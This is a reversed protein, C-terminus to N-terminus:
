RKQFISFYNHGYYFKDSYDIMKLGLPNFLGELSKKDYLRANPILKLKNVEYVLEFEKKLQNFLNKKELDIKINNFLDETSILSKPGSVTIIGDSKLVNYLRELYKEPSKLHYLVDMMNIGSFMIEPKFNEDLIDEQFIKFNNFGNCKQKQIELMAPSIDISIIARQKELLSKTVNGTGSGFDLITDFEKSSCLLADVHANKLEQYCFAYQALIDYAQSYREYIKSISENNAEKKYVRGFHKPEYGITEFGRKEFINGLFTNGRCISYFEKENGILKVGIRRNTYLKLAEDILIQIFGKGRLAPTTYGSFLYDCMLTSHVHNFNNYHMEYDEKIGLLSILKKDSLLGIIKTNHDAFANQYNDKNFSLEPNDEFIRSYLNIDREELRILHIANSVNKIIEM